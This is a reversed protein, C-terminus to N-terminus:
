DLVEPIETDCTPRAFIDIYFNKYEEPVYPFLKKLDIIKKINIPVYGESYVKVSPLHVDPRCGFKFTHKNVFNDIYKHAIITGREQEQYLLHMYTSINFHEKAEKRVHRGHSELSIINKKYFEGWWDKFNIIDSSQIPVVTFNKQTSSEEIVKYIEEMSYLRDMVRLRRKAVSFNRDCPLFSHGRIPFYQNISQFRGSDVLALLFRTVTNNKNQGGCGDSFIHLHKVTTPINEDIYKMIFTCVENPGKKADGEHYVYFLSKRSLLDHVNFVNVTLQRLYFTEQIPIAPLQLNQMYDMCIGSIEPNAKCQETVEKMKTFFKKARRKHVMMEAAATRKASDNLSPSKLKLKLDECQCCTDVQPRGFSLNFNEKFVKLYFTYEVHISPHKELFAKWMLKVNLKEDLYRYQRSSYHAEKVPFESIHQKIAYVVAGPIANGSPGAGRMDRPVQGLQILKNLRRIRDPTIGHLSIFAKKCVTKVSSSTSM